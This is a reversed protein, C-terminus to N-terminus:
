SAEAEDRAGSQRRRVREFHLARLMANVESYTTSGDREAGREAEEAEVRGGVDKPSAGTNLRKVARRLEALEGAHEEGADDDDGASARTRRKTSAGM